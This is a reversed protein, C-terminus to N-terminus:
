ASAASLPTPMWAMSCIMSSRVLRPSNVESASKAARTLGRAILLRMMSLRAAAPAKSV